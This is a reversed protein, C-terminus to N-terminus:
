TGIRSAAFSQKACAYAEEIRPALADWSLTSEALRRAHSSFAACRDPQDRLAVIAAAIGAPTEDSLLGVPETALLLKMEGVPQTIIPRGLALYDNVRGPWRGYNAVRDLFPVFFVDACSLAALYDAAPVIGLSRVHEGFGAARAREALADAASGTLMLLVDPRARAAIAIADIALDLGIKVDLASAGVIFRDSPLGFTQRHTTPAVVLVAEPRCGNLIRFITKAPVGLKEARDALGQAIVTTANARTRYHEEYYTEMGGFLVQYWRPRNETILGGRGWWDTWDIVLPAPRRRLQGLLPHITAPRTEFSHVLDYDLRRLTRTRNWACWPDWGSRARGRWLDPSAIFRIGRDTHERTRWREHDAVCLITLEHGRRALARAFGEVRWPERVKYLRHHSVFLIRV